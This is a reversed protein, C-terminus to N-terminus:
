QWTTSPIITMRRDSHLAAIDIDQRVPPILRHLQVYRLAKYMRRRGEGKLGLQCQLGLVHAALGHGKVRYRQLSGIKHRIVGNPQLSPQRGRRVGSAGYAQCRRFFGYLKVEVFSEALVGVFGLIFAKAVLALRHRQVVHRQRQHHEAQRHAKYAATRITM